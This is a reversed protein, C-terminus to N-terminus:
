QSQPGSYSKQDVTLLLFFQSRALSIVPTSDEPQYSCFLASRRTRTGASQAPRQTHSQSQFICARLAGFKGACPIGTSLPREAATRLNEDGALVCSRRPCPVM